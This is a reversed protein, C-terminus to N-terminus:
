STPRAICSCGDVDCHFALPEYAPEAEFVITTGEAGVVLVAREAPLERHGGLPHGCDSCPVAALRDLAQAQRFALGPRPM